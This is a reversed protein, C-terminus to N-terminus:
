WGGRHELQRFGDAGVRTRVLQPEPEEAPPGEAVIAIWLLNKAAKAVWRLFPRETPGPPGLPSGSSSSLWWGAAVCAVLAFVLSRKSLTIM